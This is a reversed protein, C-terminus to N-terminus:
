KTLILKGSRTRRLRCVEEGHLIEVEARNGLLAESPIRGPPRIGSVAEQHACEPNAIRATEVDTSM